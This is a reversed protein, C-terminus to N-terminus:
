TRLVGEPIAPPREPNLSTNVYDCITAVMKEVSEIENRVVRVVKPAVIGRM